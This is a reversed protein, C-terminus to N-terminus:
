FIILQKWRRMFLGKKFVRLNSTKRTSGMGLWTLRKWLFLINVLTFFLVSSSFLVAVYAYVYKGSIICFRYCERKKGLPGLERDKM